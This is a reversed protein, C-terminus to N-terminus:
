NQGDSMHLYNREFPRDLDLSVDQM